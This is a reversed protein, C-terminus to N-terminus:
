NVGQQERAAPYHWSGSWRLGLAVIIGLCKAVKQAHRLSCRMEEQVSEATIVELKQLLTAMAKKNLPRTNGGLDLAVAGSMIDDMGTLTLVERPFTFNKVYPRLSNIVAKEPRGRGQGKAKAPSTTLRQVATESMPEALGSALYNDHRLLLNDLSRHIESRRISIEAESRPKRKKKTLKSTYGPMVHQPVFSAPKRPLPLLPLELM